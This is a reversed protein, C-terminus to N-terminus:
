DLPLMKMGKREQLVKSFLWTGRMSFVLTLILLCVNDLGWAELRM